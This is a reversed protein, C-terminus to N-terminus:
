AVEDDLVRRAEELARRQEGLIREMEPTLLAESRRRVQEALLRVQDHGSRDPEDMRVTKISAHSHAHSASGHHMHPHSHTVHGHQHTHTHTGRKAGHRGRRSTLAAERAAPGWALELDEADGEEDAEQALAEEGEGEEAPAPKEEPTPVAAAQDAAQQVAEADAEDVREKIEEIEEDTMDFRSRQLWETDLVGLTSYINDAQARALESDAAASEDAASLMPWSIEYKVSEPDIGALVLATDYIQELSQGIIQQLRRLFRVYQVDQQSNHVVVGCGLAFNHCGEVTLDYVPEQGAYEVSIVKHNRGMRANCRGGNALQPADAKTLGKNWVPHEEFNRQYSRRQGRGDRKYGGILYEDSFEAYTRGAERLLRRILLESYGSEVILEKMSGSRMAAIALHEMTADRRYSPHAAGTIIERPAVRASLLNRRAAALMRGDDAAWQGTMQTSKLDRHADSSNWERQKRLGEGQLFVETVHQRHFKEHKAWTMLELNDPSNNRKDFNKHHRVCAWGKAPKTVRHTYAWRQSDPQLVMEYGELEDGEAKSSIRRYLPMVSDGVQLKSVPQYRGNRMMVPHSATAKFSEGNDLTVRWVDAMPMTEGAWSVLGARMQLSDPDVSYVWNRKGVAWEQVLDKLALERGDLLPIATDGTLCLTAKANVQEEWGMHAPPVRLTTLLKRHLYDKIDAIQYVTDGRSELVSVDTANESFGGDQTRLKNKAIFIDSLIWYVQERRGDIAQRQNVSYQFDRLAKDKEAPALGTTDVFYKYKPYARALRAIILAEDIAKLKKWIIRTVRLHSKGYPKFGDFNLRAHTIQWPWFAAVVTQVDEAIQEFACERRENLCAGTAKDYLPKAILFQGKSDQNRFMTSPPLQRFEVVQSEGNVVIEGFMDGYKVLNRTMHYVAKHLDADGTVQDVIANVREDDSTVSFSMQQGDESTTANDAITDLAVSVEESTDDMEDADKYTALRDSQSRFYQDFVSQLAQVTVGSATTQQQPPQPGYQPQSRFIAAAIRQILNPNRQPMLTEPNTAAGIDPTVRDAM